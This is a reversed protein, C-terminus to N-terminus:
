AELDSLDYICMEECIDASLEDYDVKDLVREILEYIIDGGLDNVHDRDLLTRADLMESLWNPLVHALKDVIWDQDIASTDGDDREVSERAVERVQKKLESVVDDRLCICGALTATVDIDDMSRYAMQYEKSSIARRYYIPNDASACSSIACTM